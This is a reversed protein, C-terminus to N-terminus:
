EHKKNKLIYSFVISFNHIKSIRKNKENHLILITESSDNNDISTRKERLPGKQYDLNILNNMEIGVKFTNFISYHFGLNLNTSLRWSDSFDYTINRGSIFEDSESYSSNSFEILHGFKYEIGGILGVDLSLKDGSLLYSNIVGIGLNFKRLKSKSNSVLYFTERALRLEGENSVEGLGLRYLFAFKKSKKLYSIDLDYSVSKDFETPLIILDIDEVVVDERLDSLSLQNIRTRIQNEQAFALFSINIFLITLIFKM